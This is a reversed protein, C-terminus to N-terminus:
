DGKYGFYNEFIADRLDQPANINKADLMRGIATVTTSDALFYYDGDDVPTLPYLMNPVDIRRAKNWKVSLRIDVIGRDDVTFTIEKISDIWRRENTGM